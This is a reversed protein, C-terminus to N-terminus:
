GCRRFGIPNISAVLCRDYCLELHYKGRHRWLYQARAFIARRGRCPRVRNLRIFTGLAGILQAIGCVAIFTARIPAHRRLIGALALLSGGLMLWIVADLTWSVRFM